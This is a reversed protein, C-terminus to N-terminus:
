KLVIRKGPLRRIIGKIELVTLAASVKAAPLGTEEIIEDVMREKTLLEVIQRQTDPLSPLIDKVDSYPPKEEKDIPKKEKKKDSKLKRGPSLTKQAVRLPMQGQEDYNQPAPESDMKRIAEPYLMEYEGVVDWGNRAPIAGERLLANSGEFTPMDVNGPVSFVDRGQELAQKATILAGSGKPAEIVVVGNSLGSLIRNRRPFNWKQPSTQPPFESILWGSRAVDEYLGRNVAPYVVDVGCGLVGIVTGGALLAGQMAMADIGKALGSVVIGGCGAIQYGMRRAVQLGYASAGRTGVTAIVPLSEMAPLNGKYYLVLPPDAIHKLRQPYAEDSFICLKIQKDICQRLIEEAQTVNKDQLSSIGDITLGEVQQYQEQGACYVDEADSFADLVQKKQRDNLSPRTALWIWHILM